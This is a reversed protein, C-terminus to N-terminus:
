QASIGCVTYFLYKDAVGIFAGTTADRISGDDPDVTGGTAPDILTQAGTYQDTVTILGTNPDVAPTANAPQEGEQQTSEQSQTDTSQQTNQSVDAQQSSEQQTESQQANEDRLPMHNVLKEWVSSANAAWVVRNIDAPDAVTPVTQAYMRSTSLNKMSMALGALVATDALGSSINLSQLAATALRYLQPANTFLNKQLAESIITKILYQQRTTRMVDSGDTNTGHRMRAYQTAQTGDLHQMGRALNLGTYGDQVDLPICINVGGIADIMSSMGKFDVVVFQSINLGTLANVANMTCSAASALDGGINYANAFISNFMVHYQASMMGNTTQCAPVDVMSDRPISVMNVYSRDAAIQLVITTDANHMGQETDGQGIAANQEGDRTDQGLLLIDIPKGANPDIITEEKKTTKQAIVKVENKEVISNVDVWTCAAFTVVFGLAALLVCVISSRVAHAIVYNRSHLPPLSGLSALNPTSSNRHQNGM